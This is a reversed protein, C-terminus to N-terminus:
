SHAQYYRRAKTRNGCIKMDCWRRSHNKSLDLFLWRCTEAGCERVHALEPSVLLEAAAFVIPWLPALATSALDTWTWRITGREEVLMRHRIIKQWSQNLLSLDEPNMREGRAAASFLRQLLERLDRAVRLAAQKEREPCGNLRAAQTADIVGAQQAFRLFDGYAALLETTRAADFRNDLTNALDLAVHGGVLNFASAPAM